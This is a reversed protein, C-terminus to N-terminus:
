EDFPDKFNRRVMEMVEQHSLEGAANYYCNPENGVGFQVDIGITELMWEIQPKDTAIHMAQALEIIEKTSGGTVDKLSEDKLSEKKNDM